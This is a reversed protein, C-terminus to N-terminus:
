HVDFCALFAIDEPLEELWVQTGRCTKAKKALADAVVNCIRPVHTFVSLPFEMAQFRIDEIVNGYPLADLSGELIAQIISLSDGEFIVQTLGIEKAFQVARRCALAELEVVTQALPVSMTLTGIADGHWDRIVVGLGALNESKFLAADFNAKFINEDLPRWQQLIHIPSSVPTTTTPDQAELFEQVLSGAMQTIKYLPQTPRGVRSANRRNWLLWAITIFIEKRYDDNTPM